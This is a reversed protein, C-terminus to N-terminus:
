QEMLISHMFLVTKIIVSETRETEAKAWLFL